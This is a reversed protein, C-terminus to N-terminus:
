RRYYRGPLPRAYVPAVPRPGYFGPRGYVFPVPRVPVPYAAVLPPAFGVAPVVPYAGVVPAGVGVAFGPTSVFVQARAKGAGTGLLTGLALAGALTMMSLSPRM